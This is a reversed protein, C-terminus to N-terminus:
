KTGPLANDQQPVPLEKAEKAEAPLEIKIGDGYSYKGIQVRMEVLEVPIAQDGFKDSLTMVTTVDGGYPLYDTTGIYDKGWFSVSRILKAFENLANEFEPGSFQSRMAEPIFFKFVAALDDIRGYYGIEYVTQGNKQTTGLLHYHFKSKLEPPMGNSAMQSQLQKAMLDELEPMNMKVWEAKGTVPDPMKLYLKGDVYYQEMEGTGTGPAGAPEFCFRGSMYWTAPLIMKMDMRGSMKFVPAQGALGARPKVAVDIATEMSMAQVKAAAQQSKEVVAVAQPDSGFVRALLEAAEAVTLQKAPDLQGTILGQDILWNYLTIGWHTSGLPSNVEPRHLTGTLGLTRAVMVAAEVRTVPKTPRLTGDTYGAMIGKQKLTSLAPIYWSGPDVDGAPLASDEVLPLDAAEVLMAAFAGRNIPEQPDPTKPFVELLNKWDLPQAFVLSVPVLVLLLLVLFTLPLRRM